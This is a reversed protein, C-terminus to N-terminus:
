GYLNQEDERMIQMLRAAADASNYQSWLEYDGGHKLIKEEDTALDQLLLQVAKFKDEADLQHLSEFLEQISM